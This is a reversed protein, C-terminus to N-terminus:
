GHPEEKFVHMLKKTAKSLAKILPLRSQAGAEKKLMSPIEAGHKKISVKIRDTWPWWTNYNLCEGSKQSMIEVPQINTSKCHPCLYEIKGGKSLM